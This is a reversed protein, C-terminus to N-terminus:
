RCHVSDIFAILVRVLLRCVNALRCLFSSVPWLFAHALKPMVADTLASVLIGNVILDNTLTHPNYLGRAQVAKDIKTVAASGTATTLVDGVKVQRATKLAGNAYLYHGGTMLLPSSSHTHHIGVFTGVIDHQRHTFLHVDSHEGHAGTSSVGLM